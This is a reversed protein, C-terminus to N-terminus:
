SLWKDHPLKSYLKHYNVVDQAIELSEESQVIGLEKMASVVDEATAEKPTGSVRFRANVRELGIIAAQEVTIEVAETIVEQHEVPSYDAYKEWLGERYM